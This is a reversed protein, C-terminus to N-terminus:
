ADKNEKGFVKDCAAKFEQPYHKFVGLTVEVIATAISDFVKTGKYCPAHFDWHIGEAWLRGFTVERVTINIAYYEDKDIEMSELVKVCWEVAQNLDETFLISGTIEKGAQDVWAKYQKGALGVMELKWGFAEALQENLDKEPM